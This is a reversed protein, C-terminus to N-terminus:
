GGMTGVKPPPNAAAQHRLSHIAERLLADKEEPSKPGVLRFATLRHNPGPESRALVFVATNVVEGGIEAFARPGLHALAEITTQRLVGKFARPAKQLKEEDLARLDAYSRLFM